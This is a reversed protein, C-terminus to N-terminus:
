CDIQVEIKQLAICLLCTQRNETSKWKRAEELKFRNCQSSFEKRLVADSTALKGSLDDRHKSMYAKTQHGFRSRRRIDESRKTSAHSRRRRRRRISDASYVRRWKQRGTTPARYFITNKLLARLKLANQSWKARLLM